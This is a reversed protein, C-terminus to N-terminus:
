DKEMIQRLLDALLGMAFIIVSVLIGGIGIYFLSFFKLVLTLLLSVCSLGLIVGSMLLFMKLPNYYLVAQVIYQMVRLTDRFLRVHSNGVRKNYPVPVYAVFRGTMMYALTVSTTFSFTNCLHKFYPIIQSRSFVRLGSNIDPITRGTSYEVIWKLFFRLSGKLFSERYHEGTRAGVVMNFGKKYEEILELIRVNPYTGDADTIVITDNVAAKIGTKLSAGYGANHPHRIVRAGASRAREGTSDRSGDDVVVIEHVVGKLIERIQVVTQGVSEEENYAPIVVSVM